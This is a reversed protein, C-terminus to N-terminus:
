NKLAEKLEPLHRIIEDGHGRSEFDALVKEQHEAHRAMRYCLDGDGFNYWTTQTNDDAIEQITMNQDNKSRFVQLHESVTMSDASILGAENYLRRIHNQIFKETPSLKQMRRDLLEMLACDQAAGQLTATIRAQRLERDNPKSTEDAFAPLVLLSTIFLVTSNKM